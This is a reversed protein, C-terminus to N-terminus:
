ETKKIEISGHSNRNLEDIFDNQLGAPIEVLAMLSGDGLWDTKKIKGFKELDGYLKQGYPAPMHVKLTVTQLKIPLVPQLSKVVGDVQSEVDRNFDLKVKAEDMALEIRKRPHPNGTKPDIAYACIQNLLKNMKEDRIQQRHEASLQLEGELILRKAVELKDTTAFVEELESDSIMQGRKADAFIDESRLCERIDPSFGKTKKFELAEDPNVVVEFNKGHTKMWATNWQIREREFINKSGHEVM